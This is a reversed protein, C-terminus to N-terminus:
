PFDRRVPRPMAAAGAPEPRLDLAGVDSARIVDSSASSVLRHVIFALEADEGPFHYDALLAFASDEIGVPTGRVRLGERALRDTVIARIDEARDRLRPLFIPTDCADGLRSALAHELRSAAVLESPPQVASLAIWVDLPEPREWPPRREALSQAILRQVDQPLAAGDLLVLLGRDALALPSALPDSWRAPDHERSATGEVIVLPGARRPSGLHARAIYPVPDVGNPAVVAVPAGAQLRREVAELALRSAASYVGVTAPRAARSAALVHRGEDLQERQELRLAKDEAAEARETEARERALSRLLAGKADCTGAFSDALAKLVRAEELSLPLSRSGRPLVLLGRVEGEFTIVTASLANRDVMWRLLPRLDPRRVELAELVEVRLTAEPEAGAVALLAAPLESARERAYGAGDISLVRTPELTWLEPSTAAPGAPARLAGLAGRMAAEPEARLLAQRSADFADLWAGEAPRLPRELYPAASGILLTLAAVALVAVPGRGPGEVGIAGLLAIPGGFVVLVVARRWARAIRVPDGHLAAHAVLVAEVSAGMRLVRDAAGVQMMAAALVLAVVAGSMTALTRSRDAVGLAFRRTLLNATCTAALALAAWGASLAAYTGPAPPSAHPELAASVTLALSAAMPLTAVAAAVVPSSPRLPVLAGTPHAAMRAVAVCAAACAVIAGVTGFTDLWAGGTASAMSAVVVSLAWTAIGSAKREEASLAALVLALAALSWVRLGTGQDARLAVVAVYGTSAVRPVLWRRAALFSPRGPSSMAAARM